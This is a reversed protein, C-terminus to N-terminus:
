QFNLLHGGVSPSRSFELKLLAQKRALGGAYGTLAGTAGVVRHCPIVIGLPNKGVAAGVARSASPSGLKAALAGYSVTEGEPIECLARWVQQQFPTGICLDFQLGDIAPPLRNGRLPAVKSDNHTELTDIGGFYVNFWNCLTPLHANDDAGIWSARSDMTPEHKQGDFWAGVLGDDSAALLMLGLPSAYPTTYIKKVLKRM